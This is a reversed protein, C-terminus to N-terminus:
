AQDTLHHDNRAARVNASKDSSAFASDGPTSFM